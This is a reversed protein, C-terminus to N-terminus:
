ISLEENYTDSINKALDNSGFNNLIDFNENIVIEKELYNYKIIQVYKRRKLNTKIDNSKDLIENKNMSWEEISNCKSFMFSIDKINNLAIITIELEETKKIDIYEKPFHDILRFIKNNYLIIFKKQNHNVFKDGFLRISKDDSKIKYKLRPLANIVSEPFIDNTNIIYELSEDCSSLIDGFNLCDDLILLKLKLKDSKKDPKPFESTLDYIKNRHIIKYKKKYKNVFFSTFITISNKYRHRDIKFFITVFKM